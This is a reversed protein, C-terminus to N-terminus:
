LLIDALVMNHDSPRSPDVRAMMNEWRYVRKAGKVLVVDLHVGGAKNTSKVMTTQFHNVTTYAWNYRRTTTSTDRYGQAVLVRQPAYNGRDERWSNLDAGFVVPLNTRNVTALKAVIARAQAARLATYRAETTNSGGHRSDLHAAVAFFHYGNRRDVLEAYTASRRMALSDGPATPLDFACSTSFTRTGTLNPCKSVLSIYRSDYLIRAGQTSHSTGPPYYSTNRVLRFYGGGQKRLTSTLTDTQRAHGQLTGTQGDARGPGLEQFLVVNPRRVMIEHAVDPVRQLWNRKDGTARATRVNFTAIREAAPAKAAAATVTPVAGAPVPVAHATAPLLGLGLSLAVPVALLSRPVLHRQRVVFPANTRDPTGVDASRSCLASPLDAHSPRMPRKRVLQAAPGWTDIQM